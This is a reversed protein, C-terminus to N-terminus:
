KVVSIRFPSNPPATVVMLLLSVLWNTIGPISGIEKLLDVVFRVQWFYMIYRSDDQMPVEWWKLNQKHEINFQKTFNVKRKKYWCSVCTDSAKPIKKINKANLSRSMHRLNCEENNYTDGNIHDVITLVSPNPNHIASAVIHHILLNFGQYGGYRTLKLTPIERCTVENTEPIVDFTLLYTKM